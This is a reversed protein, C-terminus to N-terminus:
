KVRPNGSVASQGGHALFSEGDPPERPQGSQRDMREAMVVVEAQERRGLHVALRAVPEVPRLLEFPCALDRPQAVQVHWKGPYRCPECGVLVFTSRDQRAM